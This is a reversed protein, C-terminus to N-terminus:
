FVRFQITLCLNSGNTQDSRFLCFEVCHRDLWSALSLGALSKKTRTEASALKAGITICAVATSGSSDGVGNPLMSTGVSWAASVYAHMCRAMCRGTTVTTCM